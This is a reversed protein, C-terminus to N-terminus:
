EDAGEKEANQAAALVSGLAFGLGALQKGRQREARKEAGKRANLSNQRSVALEREASVFVGKLYADKTFLPKWEYVRACLKKVFEGAQRDTMEKIVGYHEQKIKVAKM